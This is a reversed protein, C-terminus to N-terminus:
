FDHKMRGSQMLSLDRNSLGITYHFALDLDDRAWNNHAGIRAPTGSSVRAKPTKSKTLAALAANIKSEINDLNDSM